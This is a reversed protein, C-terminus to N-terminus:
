RDTARSAACERPISKEITRQITALDVPKVLHDDFGADVSRQRDSKQGFGSIAIFHVEHPSIATRLLPAVEYGGLGPLGIDILVIDPVFGHAISIASVGDFAVRVDHGLRRLALGTLDAVLHNDDIVLIRHQADSDVHVQPPADTTAANALSVIAPLEISFESGCGLGASHATVTGGHMAVLSQVISLGLGLGGPPHDAPQTEQAFLDFILPLMKDSIGIGNDRVRLLVNTGRRESTVEISGGSPTYKAANTLLNGVVQTLRLLDGDIALEAPVDVALAHGKAEIVPGVTEVARSVLEAVQIPQRKLELKGSRIRSLDLLDEILRVVQKLQREILTHERKHPDAGDMAILDLALLIPSLPTRLEHALMALFEDKARSSAQAKREGARLADESARLQTAITEAHRRRDAEVTAIEAAIAQAAVAQEVLDDARLTALVLRENAERMQVMLQERAIRAADAESLARLAEERPEVAGEREDVIKRRHERRWTVRNDEALM